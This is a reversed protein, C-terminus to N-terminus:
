KQFHAAKIGGAGYRAFGGNGLDWIVPAAKPMIRGSDCGRGMPVYNAMLKYLM